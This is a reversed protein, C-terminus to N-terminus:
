FQRELDTAVSSQKDHLIRYSEKNKEFSRHLPDEKVLRILFGVPTFVVYFLLGLIIRSNVWGLWHGIRMWLHYPYVLLRPFFLAPLILVGAVVVAWVRLNEQHFIWPWFGIIGFIGGVLLGFERLIKTRIEQM